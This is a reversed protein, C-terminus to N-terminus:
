MGPYKLNLLENILISEGLFIVTAFFLTLATSKLVKNLARGKCRGLMRWNKIAFPLLIISGIMSCLGLISFILYITRMRQKGLLVVTTNKCVQRDEECDRYNNVILVNAALMGVFLGWFGGTEFPNIAPDQLWSTLGVPVMGFFIVVALDGLGHHSLPWPGASYALAFIAIVLGIPLMWWGGWIILCCGPIAALILTLVVARLMSQPSLDGETVGRRYGERGPRDLGNKFDFYENAFNSAIQALVAFSLCCIAPGWRFTEFSHYGVALGALVGAIGVPLTRLRM